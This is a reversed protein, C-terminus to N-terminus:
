RSTGGFIENFKLRTRIQMDELGAELADLSPVDMRKCLMTALGDPIDNREFDEGLCVRALQMIESYLDYAALLEDREPKALVDDCIEALVQRTSNRHVAKNPFELVYWQAIFELDLLGGAATKLEWVNDSGKEQDILERM